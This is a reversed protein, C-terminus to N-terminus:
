RKRALHHALKQEHYGHHQHFVITDLFSGDAERLEFRRGSGGQYEM